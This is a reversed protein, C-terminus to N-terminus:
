VLKLGRHLRVRNQRVFISCLPLDSAMPYREVKQESVESRGSEAQFSASQAPGLTSLSNKQQLEPGAEAEQPVALNIAAVPDVFRGPGSTREKVSAEVM